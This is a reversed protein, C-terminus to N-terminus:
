TNVPTPPHTRFRLPPRPRPCLIIPILLPARPWPHPRRRLRASRFAPLVWSRLGPLFLLSNALLLPFFQSRTLNSVGYTLSPYSSIGDDAYRSFQPCNSLFESVQEEQVIDGRFNSGQSSRLLPLPDERQDAPLPPLQRGEAARRDIEPPAAPGHLGSQLKRM